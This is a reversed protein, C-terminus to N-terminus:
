MLLWESPSYKTEIQWTTASFFVWKRHPYVFLCVFFRVWICVTEEPLPLWSVVYCLSCCSFLCVVVAPHLSFTTPSLCLPISTVVLPLPFRSTHVIHICFCFQTQGTQSKTLTLPSPVQFLSYRDTLDILSTVASLPTTLLSIFFIKWLTLSSM